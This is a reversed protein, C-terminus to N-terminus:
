LQLNLNGMLTEKPRKLQSILVAFESPKNSNALKSQLNSASKDTDFKAAFIAFESQGDLNAEATEIPKDAKCM